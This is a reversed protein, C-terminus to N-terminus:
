IKWPKSFHLTKMAVKGGETRLRESFRTFSFLVPLTSRSKEQQFPFTKQDKREGGSDGQCSDKGSQGNFGAACMM